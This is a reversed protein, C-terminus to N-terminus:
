PLWGSNMSWQFKDYAPPLPLTRQQIASAKRSRRFRPRDHALQKSPFDIEYGAFVPAQPGLVSQVHCCQQLTCSRTTPISPSNRQEQLARAPERAKLLPRRSEALLSSEVM